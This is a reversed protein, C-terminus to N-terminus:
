RGEVLREPIGDPLAMRYLRGAAHFVAVSGDPSVAPWRIMRAQFTDGSIDFKARAQESVRRRVEAVFPVEETDGSPPRGGPVIRGGRLVYLAASDPTWSYGPLVRETKM